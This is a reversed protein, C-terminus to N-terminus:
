SFDVDEIDYDMIFRKGRNETLGYVRGGRRKDYSLDEPSEPFFDANKYAFNGPVWGFMDGHDAGNSRSIYFRGNASVAGQVREIDVCYAWKAKTTKGDMRLRGTTDNLPYKVMRVPVSTNRRFEGVLLTHQSPDTRDLSIYSFWFDFPSSWKYWRPNM